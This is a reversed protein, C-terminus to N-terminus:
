MLLSRNLDNVLLGLVLLVVSICSSDSDTGKKIVKICAEEDSGDGCDDTGDCWLRAQLCRGNHCQRKDKLTACLEQPCQAEDSEDVCDSQSNCRQAPTYCGEGSSCAIGSDCGPM